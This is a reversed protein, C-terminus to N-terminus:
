CSRYGNKWDKVRMKRREEVEKMVEEVNDIPHYNTKRDFNIRILKGSNVLTQYLHKKIQYKEIIEAKTYYQKSM